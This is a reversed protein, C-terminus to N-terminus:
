KLFVVRKGKFRGALVILIQGASINKKLKTPKPAKNARKFHHKIDDGPYWKSIRYGVKKAKGTAKETKPPM